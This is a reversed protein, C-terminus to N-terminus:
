PRSPRASRSRGPAELPRRMRLSTSGASGARAPAHTATDVFGESIGNAPPGSRSPAPKRSGASTSADSRGPGTYRRAKARSPRVSSVPAHSFGQAELDALRGGGVGPADARQDLADEARRHGLLLPTPLELAVGVAPPAHDAHVVVPAD